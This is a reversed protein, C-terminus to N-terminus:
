PKQNDRYWTAAANTTNVGAKYMYVVDNGTVSTTGTRAADM